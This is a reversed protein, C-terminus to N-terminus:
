LQKVIVLSTNEGQPTRKMGHRIVKLMAFVPSTSRVATLDDDVSECRSLLLATILAM